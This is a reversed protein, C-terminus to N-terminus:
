SKSKRRGDKFRRRYAREIASSSSSPIDLDAAVGDSQAARLAKYFPRRKERWYHKNLLDYFPEPNFGVNKTDQAARAARQRRKKADASLKKKIDANEKKLRASEEREDTIKALAIKNRDTPPTREWARAGEVAARIVGANLDALTRRPPTTM